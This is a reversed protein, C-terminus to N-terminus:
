KIIYKKGNIIYIGKPLSDKQDATGVKVGQLNYIAGTEAKQRFQTGILATTNESIFSIAVSNSDHGYGYPAFFARFAGTEQEFPSHVFNTGAENLVYIHTDEKTTRTGLFKFYNGSMFTPADSQISVNDGTFTLEKGALKWEDGWTDGPITIIYPMNAKLKDAYNFLVKDEDDSNFEMLWFNKNEDNASHFWDINNGGASISMVNFPLCITTWGGSNSPDYGNTITRKYTITNVTFDIPTFFDHGDTLRITNAVNGKIVNHTNETIGSPVDADSDLLYLCNPNTEDPIVETITNQGRLDVVATGEPINVSATPATATTLNGDSDITIFGHSITCIESSRGELVM